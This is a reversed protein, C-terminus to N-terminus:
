KKFAKRQTSQSRRLSNNCEVWCKGHSEKFIGPKSFNNEQCLATIRSTLNEDAELGIGCESVVKRPKIRPRVHIGNNQLMKEALLTEHTTQFLLIIKGGM